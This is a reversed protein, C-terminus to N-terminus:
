NSLHSAQQCTQGPKLVYSSCLALAWTLKAKPCPRGNLVTATQLAFSSCRNRLICGKVYAAAAPTDRNCSIIAGHCQGVAEAVVAGQLAHPQLMISYTLSSSEGQCSCHLVICAALAQLQQRLISCAQRRLQTQHHLCKRLMVFPLSNNTSLLAKGYEGALRLSAGYSLSLRAKAINTPM